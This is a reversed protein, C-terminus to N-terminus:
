KEEHDNRIILDGHTKKHKRKGLLRIVSLLIIVSSLLAIAALPLYNVKATASALPVPSSSELIKANSAANFGLGLAWLYGKKLQEPATAGVKKEIAKSPDDLILALDFTASNSPGKIEYQVLSIFPLIVWKTIGLKSDKSPQPIEEVYSLTAKEYQYNIDQGNENVAAPQSDDAGWIAFTLHDIDSIGLNNFKEGWTPDLNIWGVNPIYAEVWSHLSDSVSPSVKLDGSYGYGVPMRAPIGAARMLAISLDSYELCVVNSPNKFAKIAGQRINYKIKENNYDLTNIVYQNIAAVKDAVKNKNQTLEKAKAQISPDNSQWYRTPKTYADILNQPIDAMDGSKALDYKIYKIDALFVVKVDVKEGGELAYYAIINGDKDLRTSDPKPDISQIFVSQAPTNPPLTVAYNKAMSSQNNLPYTINGKYTTSDGFLLQLSNNVLDSQNFSYTTLGNKSYSQAPIIGFGHVNGFSTPVTLSVSYDNKNEQAIAPVYVVHARGKNEVLSSTQYEVVFGWNLGYGVKAATFDIYIQTYDYKFGGSEQKVLQTSFPIAGGGKYYVRVNTLDSAPSSLKISDLYRDTTNNTVNYTEVVSTVGTPAVGYDVNIKYSFEGAASSRLAFLGFSLVFIGLILLLIFKKIGNPRVNRM